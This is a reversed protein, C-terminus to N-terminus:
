YEIVLLSKLTDCNVSESSKKEIKTWSSVFRPPLYWKENKDKLM